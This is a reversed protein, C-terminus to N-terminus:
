KKPVFNFRGDLEKVVANTLDKAINNLQESTMVIKDGTREANWPKTANIADELIQVIEANMSRGNKRALEAIASRMGDPLRLMFKDYDRVPKDSM